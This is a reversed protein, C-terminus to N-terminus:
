LHPLHLRSSFSATLNQVPGKQQQSGGLNWETHHNTEASYWFMDVSPSDWILIKKLLFDMTATDRWDMIHKGSSFSLSFICVGNFPDKISLSVLPLSELRWSSSRGVFVHNRRQSICFWDVHLARFVVYSNDMHCWKPSLLNRYSIFLFIVWSSSCITHAPALHSLPLICFVLSCRTDDQVQRKM